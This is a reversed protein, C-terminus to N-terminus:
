AVNTLTYICSLSCASRSLDLEVSTPSQEWAETQFAGELM